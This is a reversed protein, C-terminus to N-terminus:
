EGLRYVKISKRTRRGSGSGSGFTSGAQGGQARGHSSAEFVIFISTLQYIYLSANFEEYM